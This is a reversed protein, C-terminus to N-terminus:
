TGAPLIAPCDELAGAVWEGQLHFKKHNFSGDAKRFTVYMSPQNYLNIINVTVPLSSWPSLLKKDDYDYGRM